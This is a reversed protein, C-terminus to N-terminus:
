ASGQDEVPRAPNGVVHAGPPVDRVVVAGPAVTAGAGITVGKLITANYGIWVDDEVVVPRVDFAPRRGRDGRTSLAVTDALRGAPSLPHFDSDVITVGGAVVVHSGITIRETCALSANALYCFDGIEILGIEEAALSTRWFTVGRGVRLGVRATAYFHKFCFSSDIVTGEGVEINTPIPGHYWDGVLTAGPVLPHFLPAQVEAATHIDTV